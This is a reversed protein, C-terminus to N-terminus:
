FVADELLLRYLCTSHDTIHDSGELRGSFSAVGHTTEGKERVWNARDKNPTPM